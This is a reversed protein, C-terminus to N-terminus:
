KSWNKPKNLTGGQIRWCSQHDLLGMFYSVFFGFHPVLPSARCKWNMILVALCVVGWPLNDEITEDNDLEGRGFRLLYDVLHIDGITTLLGPVLIM